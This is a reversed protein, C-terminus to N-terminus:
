LGYSIKETDLHSKTATIRADDSSSVSFRLSVFNVVVVTGQNSEVEEIVRAIVVGACM